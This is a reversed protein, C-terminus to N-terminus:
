NDKRMRGTIEDIINKISFPEISESNHFISSYDGDDVLEGLDNNRQMGNMIEHWIRAPVGGGTISKKPIGKDKGVWVGAVYNGTFGVFWTDRSNQSTGTKGAAKVRTLAAAKGTGHEVVMRLMSSLKHATDKRIVRRMFSTDNQMLVEGDEVAISHIGYSPVSIGQNAITAYVSTMDLLPVEIVGLPLSPMDYSLTERIGMDNAIKVVRRRGVKESLRVAVTNVSKAFARTITMESEYQGSYNNPSWHTNNLHVIHGSVLDDPNIGNELAAAYVIVKFVSGPQRRSQVARNFPSEKYNIGGVMAYVEGKPSMIVVAAQLNDDKYQQMVKKVSDEALKQMYPDYTSRVVLSVRSSVLWEPMSQWIWDAFYNSSQESRTYRVLAHNKVAYMVEDVTIMGNREMAYLVTKARDRARDINSIPSYRVPAKLMGALMAAEAISVDKVSKGFYRQSASEFGYTGAGLYASNIYLTLIQKKSYKMEIALSLILEKIKREFTKDSNLFLIKSLQQTITSAGEIYAKARMNRALARGVAIPDVGPHIFFRHDEIALIANIMHPSVQDLSVVKNLKGRWAFVKGNRDVLKVGAKDGAYSLYDFSPIKQTYWLALGVLLLILAVASCLLAYWISYISTKIIRTIYQFSM